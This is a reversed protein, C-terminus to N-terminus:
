TSPESQEDLSTQSWDSMGGSRWLVLGSILSISTMCLRTAVSVAYGVSESSGLLAFMAAYAAEGVGWGGPALPVASISNAVAAAALCGFYGAPDGVGHAVAFVGLGVCLHNGLSLAMAIVVERPRGAVERLADIVGSLSQPALAILRQAGLAKRLAPVGLILLSATALGAIGVLPLAIAELEGGVFLSSLAGIWLLVLLGFVRDLGVAMIAAPRKGPHEKAAVAAKVVDGGTLGPLVLNFFLGLLTLRAATKYSSPAGCVRLLRWWRTIGCFLGGLAAGLIALLTGWELSRLVSILGRELSADKEVGSFSARGKRRLDEAWPTTWSHPVAAGDEIMFTSVETGLPEAIEGTLWVDGDIVQVRDNWPILAAVFTVVSASVALRLAGKLSSSL